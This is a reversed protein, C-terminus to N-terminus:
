TGTVHDIFSRLSAWYLPHASVDNHGRGPILILRKDATGAADHAAGAEEPPILTDLAGHLILLPATSAGLKPRSDFAASEAPSLPGDLDLGRRRVLRHLDTFGSELILGAPAPITRALEAACASGLSRGMLILPLTSAARAAALVLHADALSSRLTPIGDSAGYGRYDSVALCAGVAAYDPAAADYDAVVEGNGHFLLVLARATPAAHVRLHLSIEPAVTVRVDRAGPPPASTDQRPFFLRTNFAPTDFISSM